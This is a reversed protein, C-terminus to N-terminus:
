PLTTPVRWLLGDTYGTVWLDGAGPQVVALGAHIAYSGVVEGSAPDVKSLLGGEQNTVWVFGAAIALEGPQGGFEVRLVVENTAADIKALSGDVHTVWVASEDAAIWLPGDGSATRAVVENTAPDIRVVEDVGEAAVWVAGATIAIGSAPAGVEVVAVPTNTEPDVRVARGSDRDVFWISDASADVDWIQGRSVLAEGVEALTEASRKVLFRVNREADFLFGDRYAIACPSSGTSTRSLITDTAADITLIENRRLDTVWVTSEHVAIGCPQRGITFQATAPHGSPPPNATEVADPATTASVAVSPSAGETAPRFSASSAPSGPGCAALAVASAVLAGPWWRPQRVSSGNVTRATV